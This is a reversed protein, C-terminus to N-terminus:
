PESVEPDTYGRPQADGAYGISSWGILDRNGGYEPAAYMGECCHEYLLETFSVHERLRADQEDEPLDCFEGGLQALGARYLEQLGVVPGNFEREALGRSGEIRTRWALEDLQGLRHFDSFRAEGGRRGSTPGGAWIRPPDFEFAGLMGDIYDPVGAELAGPTEDAPILRACAACLIAYEQDTLWSPVPRSAVSSHPTVSLNPSVPVRHVHRGELHLQVKRVGSRELRLSRHHSVDDLGSPSAEADRSRLHRVVVPPLSCADSEAHDRRGDAVCFLQEIPDLPEYPGM